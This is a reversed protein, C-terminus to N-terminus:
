RAALMRSAPMATLRIPSHNNRQQTIVEMEAPLIGAARWVRGAQGVRSVRRSFGASRQRM